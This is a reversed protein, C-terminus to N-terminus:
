VMYSVNYARGSPLCKTSYTCYTQLDDTSRSRPVTRVPIFLVPGVLGKAEIKGVGKGSVEKTGEVERAGVM